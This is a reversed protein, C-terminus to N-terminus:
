KKNQLQRMTWLIANASEPTYEPLKVSNLERLETGSDYDNPTLEICEFTGKEKKYFSIFSDRGGYLVANEDFALFSGIFSDLIKVWLPNDDNDPIPLITVNEMNCFTRELMKKRFEFPYPNKFDIIKNTTGLFIVVRNHRSRVTNVMSKHSETLIPVQMRCILVGLGKKEKMFNDM